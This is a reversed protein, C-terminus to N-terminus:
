CGCPGATSWLSFSNGGWGWVMQACILNSSPTCPAQGANCQGWNVTNIQWLGVDESGNANGNMANANGNSEHTVICMCCAQNWNYSACWNSISVPNSTTGCYCTSCQGGPCNGGCTGSLVLPLLCVLLLLRM